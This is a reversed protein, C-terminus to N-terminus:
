SGQAAVSGPLEVTVTTGQGRASRVLCRGRHAAAVAAVLALGLGSGRTRRGAEARYFRDFVHPLAEPPIGEGQDTVEIRIGGGSEATLRVEAPTGPATHVRVNALLNDLLRRLEDEDGTVYAPTEAEFGLRREPDVVRAAEVAERALRALDVEEARLERRADLRALLLLDDVLRSMRLAEDGIRGVAQARQHEEPLAGQAYLDTYGLVASLPTRLEHSADAVFRRLREQMGEQRAFAEGQKQLMTNLALGLRGVETEASERIRLPAEGRSIADADRAMAELPRLGRRVIWFGAGAVLALGAAAGAGEILLLRELADDVATLPVAVVLVGQRGPLKRNLLRYGPGSGDTASVTVPSGGTGRPPKPVEPPAAGPDRLQPALPRIAGSPERIEIFYGTSGLMRAGTGLGEGPREGEKIQQVVRQQVARATTDTRDLLYDRMTAYVFAAVALLVVGVAALLALLLRGRLSRPLPPRRM